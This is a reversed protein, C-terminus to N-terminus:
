RRRATGTCTSTIVVSISLPRSRQKRGLKRGGAKPSGRGTGSDGCPVHEGDEGTAPGTMALGRLSGEPPSRTGSALSATSAGGGLALLAQIAVQFAGGTVGGVGAFADEGGTSGGCGTVGGALGAFAEEGGSSGGCGAVGGALGAFACGTVGGAMGTFASGPVGGAMGPFSVRERLRGEEVVV